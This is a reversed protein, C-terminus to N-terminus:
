LEYRQFPVTCPKGYAFYIARESPVVVYAVSTHMGAQGHQCIAGPESHDRLIEMAREPTRPGQPVLRLLNEYRARSNALREEPPEPGSLSVFHNTVAVMGDEPKRVAYEYTSYEVAFFGREDGVVFNPPHGSIPIRLLLGLVDEPGEAREVLVRGAVNSCLGDKRPPVAPASAGVKVLGEETVVANVWVTGPWTFVLMRRGGPLTYRIPVHYHEKNEGIDNTKGFIAGGPAEFAFASCGGVRWMEPLYNYAFIDYPEVGAGEAIGEMEECLGPYIDKLIRNQAEVVERHAETSYKGIELEGLIRRIDEKFAEGVTRGIERHSGEADVCRPGSM